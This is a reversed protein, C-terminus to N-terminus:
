HEMMTQYADHWRLDVAGCRKCYLQPYDTPNYKAWDFDQPVSVLTYNQRRSQGCIQTKGDRTLHFTGNTSAKITLPESM